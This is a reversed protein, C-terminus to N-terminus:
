RLLATAVMSGVMFIYTCICVLGFGSTLAMLRAFASPAAVLDCRPPESPRRHIGIVPRPRVPPHRGLGVRM